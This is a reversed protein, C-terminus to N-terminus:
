AMHLIFFDFLLPPRYFGGGGLHGHGECLLTSSDLGLGESTDMDRAFLNDTRMWGRWPQYPLRLRLIARAPATHRDVVGRSAAQQRKVKSVGELGDVTGGLQFRAPPRPLWLTLLPYWDDTLTACDYVCMWVMHSACYVLVMTLTLLAIPIILTIGCALDVVLM